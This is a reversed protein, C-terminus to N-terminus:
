ATSAVRAPALSSARRARTERPRRARRRRSEPPRGRVGEGIRDPVVAALEARRGGAADAGAAAPRQDRRRDGHEANQGPAQGHGRRGLTPERTLGSRRRHDLAKPLVRRLQPEMGLGAPRLEHCLVPRDLEVGGRVAFAPDAVEDVLRPLRRVGAVPPVQALRWIAATGILTPPSPPDASTWTMPPRTASARALDILKEVGVPSGM